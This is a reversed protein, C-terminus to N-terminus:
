GGSDVVQHFFPIDGPDAAGLVLPHNQQGQSLLADPGIFLMRGEVLLHYLRDHVPELALLHLDQGPSQLLEASVKLIQSDLREELIFFPAPGTELFWTHFDCLTLNSSLALASEKLKLIELYGLYYKLYNSPEELINLYLTHIQQKDKIGFSALYTRCDEESWGEGHIALDLSACVAFNLSSTARLFAAEQDTLGLLDYAYYESYLGWGETYGGIYFLNRVPAYGEQNEFSNQYLHGPYSEHALTTILETRDPQYSPNIYIVNQQPTDIAPTMYFAPSLFAALSNPVEKVTWSIEEAAPFDEAIQTELRTLIEEPSEASPTDDTLRILGADQHLGYLITEYDSEMQEELLQHIGAISLDTGISYKLLYEYYDIGRPTHYLGQANQGSGRLSELSKCLEQYAFAVYRNLSRLNEAEYSIKQDSSLFDCQEIRERFTLALFHTQNLSDSPILSRCQNLVQDLMEDTMFLGQESKESEFAAISQFYEPLTSLLELYTKIDQENRFPYEALLVPLQAQVGLTPGLPEQYYYYEEAEIQGALWWDLIEATLQDEEGLGGKLYRSLKKRCKELYARSEKAAERDFSGFSPNAEKIGYSGPNALTYHLDITNGSLAQRFIDMTFRDFAYGKLSFPFSLVLTCATILVKKSFFFRQM